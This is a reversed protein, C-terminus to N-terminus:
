EKMSTIQGDELKLVRDACHFYQDDHSVVIITQGQAKLKPLVQEYFYRRFQPDQDAALEDFICIPHKKLVAVIFALRKRQGTSLDINTFRNDRFYTKRELKMEKLWAKMEAKDLDPLGYLRDFLHFDAFVISFLERYAPYQTEDIPDDDVYLCGQEPRYLGILLKLFTSKGSGNGGVVFVLEGRRLTFHHPGSTFLIQGSNDRYHFLVNELALSQFDTMASYDDDSNGSTSNAQDLKSELEYLRNISDNTKAFVPIGTSLMVLPGMIFIVASTISHIVASHTPVFSPVIFVTMLLLLYLISSSLIMDSIHSLNSKVSIEQIENSLRRLQSFIEDNERQSLKLEKFGLLISNFYNLFESERSSTKQMELATKHFRSTYLPLGFAILLLITIFAAPSIAALYLGSVLLMLGGQTTYVGQVVGEAIINTDQTLASYAGVNKHEEIFRLDTHRVKDSIRIKVKELAEEVVTIAQTLAYHLAIAYVLFTLLLFILLFSGVKHDAVNDAAVNIAALVLGNAIGSVSAMSLILLMPAKTERNLFHFLKFNFFKM